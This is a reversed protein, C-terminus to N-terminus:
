PRRDLRNAFQLVFFIGLMGILPVASGSLAAFGLVAPVTFAAFGVFSNSGKRM